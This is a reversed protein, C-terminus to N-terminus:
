ALGLAAQTNLTKSHLCTCATDETEMSNAKHDNNM